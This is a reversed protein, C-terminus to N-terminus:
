EAQIEKPSENKMVLTRHPFPIEIGESDFRRKVSENLDCFMEFGDGASAAWLWARLNVSSDGLSVVRVRVVPAGNEKEEESRNDFILRHKEAEEQIIAKAKDVDSDYSIGVEFWRCIKSEGMDANVIVEDSIISNPIVIRRNQYDRIVTHRLTIDEVIGALNTRIELRDNVRFPKFIVIFLGGVINSLADQSAFGVVVTLIGAGALMSTALSRLSPITYVAAGFGVIYVLASLLHGVFKYGTPNKLIMSTNRLRRFYIRRFIYAVVITLLCIAIAPLPNLDQLLEM